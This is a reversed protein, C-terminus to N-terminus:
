DIIYSTQVVKGKEKRKAGKQRMPRALQQISEKNCNSPTELNTSSSYKGCASFKARKSAGLLNDISQITWKPEDKLLRWVQELRFEEGVDQSFITNANLLIDNESSGSQSKESAQCYCGVFKGIATNLKHWRSKLQSIERVELTDCYNNYNEKLRLWFSSAKQDVGIISDKSVNFWTQVLLTDEKKSFTVRVLKNKGFKGRGEDLTIDELGVVRQTYNRKIIKSLTIFIFNNNNITPSNM